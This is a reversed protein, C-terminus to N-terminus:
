MQHDTCAIVNRMICDMRLTDVKNGFVRKLASDRFAFIVNTRDTQRDMHM